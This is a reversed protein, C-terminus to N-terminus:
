WWKWILMTMVMVMMFMTAMIIMILIVVSLVTPVCASPFHNASTSIRNILSPLEDDHDLDLHLHFEHCCNNHFHLYNPDHYQWISITYICYLNKRRWIRVVWVQPTRVGVHTLVWISSWSLWSWTRGSLKHHFKNDIKHAYIQAGFKVTQRGPLWLSLWALSPSWWFCPSWWTSSWTTGRGPRGPCEVRNMWWVFCNEEPPLDNHMIIAMTAM